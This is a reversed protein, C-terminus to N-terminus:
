TNEEIVIWHGSKPPGERRIRGAGKLASLHREVTRSTTGLRLALGVASQAPDERLLGLLADAVGVNVGVNVGVGGAADAKARSEYSALSDTIIDLMYDIFAAADIEPERSAQLARYYDGQRERVLTETPMWAFLPKWRSLILTQWLRGIRGNGDRFPHIHEILFHVASSAVLAHDDSTSGWALLEAILRPVKEVRSGTHIVDGGANVIEVDVTRFAGSETVLGATLLGHARLFDDISWPDLDEIADYAALANEVEKVDRPPAFVPEGHAVGEVQALTLRNGEIATSSHVSGIRNGRRLELRRGSLEEIATVRGLLEVVHEIRAPWDPQPTYFDPIM